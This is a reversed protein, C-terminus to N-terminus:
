SAARGLRRAVAYGGTGLIGITLGILGSPEPVAEIASRVEIGARGPAVLTDLYAGEGTILAYSDSIDGAVIWTTEGAIQGATFRFAGVLIRFLGGGLDTARVPDSLTDVMEILQAYSGPSLM